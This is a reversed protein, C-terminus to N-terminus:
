PRVCGSEIKVRSGCVSVPQDEKKLFIKCGEVGADSFERLEYQRVAAGPQYRLHMALVDQLPCDEPVKEDVLRLPGLQPGVVTGHSVLQPKIAGIQHQDEGLDQAAPEDSIEEDEEVDQEVCADDDNPVEGEEMMDGQVESVTEEMDVQVKPVTEAEMDLIEGGSVLLAAPSRGGEIGPSVGCTAATLDHAPEPGDANNNPALDHAASSHFEDKGGDANNIPAPDHAASSHFENNGGDANNHPALDHAATSHFEDKGGDSTQLKNPALMEGVKMIESHRGVVVRHTGEIDTHASTGIVGNSIVGTAATAADGNHTGEIDTHASTGIVGNSIVGTAATAADGNCDDRSSTIGHGVAEAVGTMADSSHIPLTSSPLTFLWEV